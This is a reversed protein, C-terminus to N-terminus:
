SANKGPPYSIDQHEATTVIPAGADHVLDSVGDFIQMDCDMAGENGFDVLEELRHTSVQAKEKTPVAGWGEGLERVFDDGVGEAVDLGDFAWFTDDFGFRATQVSMNAIGSGGFSTDFSNALLFEHNEDLIHANARVAETSPPPVAADKRKGVRKKNEPDYEDDTKDADKMKGGVNLYEDWDAVMNDFDLSLAANPDACLTVVSAKVTPQLMQLEADSAAMSRVEQVVRKLSNFCM